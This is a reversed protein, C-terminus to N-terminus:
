LKRMLAAQTSKTVHLNQSEEDNPQVVRVRFSPGRNAHASPIRFSPARVYSKNRM